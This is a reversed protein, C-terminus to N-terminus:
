GSVLSVLSKKRKKDLQICVSGSRFCGDMTAQLLFSEVALAKAQHPLSRLTDQLTESSLDEKRAMKLLREDYM